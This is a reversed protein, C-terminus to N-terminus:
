AMASAHPFAPQSMVLLPPLPMAVIVPDMDMDERSGPLLLLLLLLLLLPAPPLAVVLLLALLGVSGHLLAHTPSITAAQRLTHSWM